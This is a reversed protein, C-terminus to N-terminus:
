LPIAILNNIVSHDLIVIREAFRPTGDVPVVRDQYEGTCFLEPARESVSRYVVFNSRLRFEEGTRETVDTSSVIHRYCHAEFVNAHRVSVVRDQLMGVTECLMISVPFGRKVNARTTIRYLCRETFLSPWAEIQDGDLVHVYRNLLATIEDPPVASITSAAM